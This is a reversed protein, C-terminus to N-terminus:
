QEETFIECIKAAVACGLERHGEQTMHIGDTDSPRAVTAADLFWAGAQLAVNKYAAAFELSKEHRKEEPFVTRPSLNLIDQHVIIPSIILIKAPSNEQKRQPTDVMYFSSAVRNEITRIQSILTGVGRAAGAGNTYKLDNTGLMIVVLDVPSAQLLAYGLGEKGNLYDDFPSDFVTTRGNLGAEIVCYGDGLLGQLVGTWRTHSDYRQGTGPMYGWTNSDGYCLIRKADTKPM